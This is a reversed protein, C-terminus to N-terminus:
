CSDQENRKWCARRRRKGGTMITHPLQRSQRIVEAEMTAVNTNTRITGMGENEEGVKIGTSEEMGTRTVGIEAGEAIRGTAPYIGIEPGKGGRERFTGKQPPDQGAEVPIARTPALEQLPCYRLASPPLPIAIPPTSATWSHHRMSIAIVQRTVRFPSVTRAKRRLPNGGTTAKGDGGTGGGGAMAIATARAAGAGARGVAARAAEAELAITPPAMMPMGLWLTEQGTALATIGEKASFRAMRKTTSPDRTISIPGATRTATNNGEGHRSM